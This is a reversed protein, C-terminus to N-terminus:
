RRRKQKRKGRGKQRAAPREDVKAPTEEDWAADVDGGDNVNAENAPQAEVDHSSAPEESSGAEEDAEQNAPALAEALMDPLARAGSAGGENLPPLSPEIATVLAGRTGALRDIANRTAAVVQARAIDIARGHEELQVAASIADRVAEETWELQKEVLEVKAEAARLQMRTLAAQEDAVDRDFTVVELDHRAKALAAQLKAAEGRTEEELERLRVELARLRRREEELERLRADREEELARANRERAELARAHREREDEVAQVGRAREEDLEGRAVERAAQAAELQSRLVDVEERLDDLERGAERVHAEDSSLRQELEQTRQDAARARAEATAIEERLSEITESLEIARTRASKAIEEAQAVRAEANRARTDAEAAQSRLSDAERSLTEARAELSTARAEADDARAHETRARAEAEDVRAELSALRQLSDDRLPPGSANRAGARSEADRLNRELEAIRVLMQAITDADGAREHQERALQAEREALRQRLATITKTVSAIDSTRSSAPRVSVQEERLRPPAATTASASARPPRVSPKTSGRPPRRSEAM